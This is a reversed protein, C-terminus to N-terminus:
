GIRKELMSGRLMVYSIPGIGCSAAGPMLSSSRVVLASCIGTVVRLMRSVPRRSGMVKVNAVGGCPATAEASLGEGTV